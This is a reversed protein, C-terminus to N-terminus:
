YVHPVLRYRTREMYDGYGPLAELLFREEVRAKLGWVVLLAATLVLAVPSFALSLGTLFLGGAAYMPHRVVRYPGREVIRADHTPRPFPTLGRGLARAAVVAVIGGALALAAGAVVLPRRAADPWAPGVLTAIGVASMLVFQVVVWGGGRAGLSPVEPM